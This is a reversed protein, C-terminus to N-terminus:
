FAERPAARDADFTLESLRATLPPTPFQLYSPSTHPRLPIDAPALGEGGVTRLRQLEITDAIDYLYFARMAGATVRLTM